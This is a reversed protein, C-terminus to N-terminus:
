TIRQDDLFPLTKKLEQEYNIAHNPNQLYVIFLEDGTSLLYLRNQEVEYVGHERSFLLGPLESFVSLLEHLNKFIFEFKEKFEKSLEPDTFEGKTDLTYVRPEGPVHQLKDYTSILSAYIADRDPKRPPRPAPDRTLISDTLNSSRIIALIEAHQKRITEEMKNKMELSDIPSNLQREIKHVVCGSHLVTTTLRPVPRHAYETQVQLAIGNRKVLSTRGTPIFDASSM